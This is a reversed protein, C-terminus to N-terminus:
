RTISFAVVQEMEPLQTLAFSTQSDVNVAWLNRSNRILAFHRNDLWQPFEDTELPTNSLNTLGSGDANVVYVEPPTTNTENNSFALRAGDPSWSVRSVGSLEPALQRPSGGAIEATYLNFSNGDYRSFAVQRGDPSWDFSGIRDLEPAVPNTEDNRFSFWMLQGPGSTRYLLASGDPSWKGSVGEALRVAEGDALSLVWLEYKGGAVSVLYLLRSGDPSWAPAFARVGAPTLQETAGTPHLRLLGNYDASFLISSGDPAPAPGDMNEAAIPSNLQISNAECSAPTEICALPFAM